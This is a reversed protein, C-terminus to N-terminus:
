CIQVVAAKIWQLVSMNQNVDLKLIQLSDQVVKKIIDLTDTISKVEEGDADEEGMSWLNERHIRLFTILYSQVLDLNDRTGFAMILVNLFPVLASSPLSRIQFDISSLSMTKIEEFIELYQQPNRVEKLKTAFPTELELLKRKAAIIRERESADTLDMKDFSVGELNEITPLFFPAHKPKKPPEIPKNRAKIAELEALNAWRAPPLGSFSYLDNSEQYQSKEDQIEVDMDNFDEADSDIIVQLEDDTEHDDFAGQSIPIDTLGPLSVKNFYTSDQDGVQLDVDDIFMSINAWVYVAIEGEHATTLFQGGPNFALSVCPTPCLMCDILLSTTIDWVKIKGGNDASVLWKGDRSYELATITNGVHAKLFKRAIKGSLADLIVLAGGEAAVALLSNSKDLKFKIVGAPLQCQMFCKTPKITWFRILGDSAGTILKQTCLDSVVANVPHPHARYDDNAREPQIMEDNKQKVESKMVFTGRLFGSQLNFMDVHGTSYGIFALNGCASISISTAYATIYDPNKAFREHYLLKEGKTQRRSSWTSVIPSNKHRCIVNDWAGERAMGVDMEVIPELPVDMFRDRSVESKKVERAKGLSKMIDDRIINYGRVYGDLSASVMSNEGFFAISSVPASHGALETNIIPLSQEEEVSWKIMRNDVGASILYPMGKIFYLSTIPGSHVNPRQGILIQENLDWLAISGESNATAMSEIADTRFSIATISGDQKFSCLKEDTKLNRLQIKGNAHGIAVIDVVTSQEICTIASDYLPKPSFEHVLKGTKINILRIEGKSGGLVIKNMYTWPHVICTAEFSPPSPIELIQTCENVDIIRLTNEVDVVVLIDVFSLMFKVDKEVEIQRLLTQNNKFVCIINDYAAFVYAKDKELVTIPKPIPDSVKYRRFPQMRYTVFVNGIAANVDGLRKEKPKSQFKPPVSSCVLGLAKYPTFLTTPQQNM